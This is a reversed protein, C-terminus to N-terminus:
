CKWRDPDDLSRKLSRSLDDLSGDNKIEGTVVGADIEQQLNGIGRRSEQADIRKRAEEITLGRTEILRTLAVERPVTVVWVGDLIDDWGADILVAAELVVIPRKNPSAKFEKCEAAWKRRLMSIEDILLTKVYPWVIKELKTMASQKAFVIEGLKKRDIEIPSMDEEKEGDDQRLLIENGFTAVVDRIAQSGPAYISHAVSDADIHKLCNYSSVLLNSATSKGSGIGGCVGLVRFSDSSTSSVPLDDSASDVFSM